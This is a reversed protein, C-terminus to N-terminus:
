ENELEMNKVEANFYAILHCAERESIGHLAFCRAATQIEVDCIHLYQKIMHTQQTIGYVRAYPIWTKCKVVRGRELKFHQREHDMHLRATMYYNRQHLYEFFLGVFFIGWIWKDWNANLQLLHRGLLLGALLCGDVSLIAGMTYFWYKRTSQWEQQTEM